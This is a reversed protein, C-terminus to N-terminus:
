GRTPTQKEGAGSPIEEAPVIRYIIEGEKAKRFLRRAIKEVYVPDESLLKLENGLVRNQVMLRKIDDELEAAKQNLRVVKTVAPTFLWAFVVIIFFWLFTKRKM